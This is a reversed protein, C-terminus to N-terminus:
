CEKVHFLFPLNIPITATKSLEDISRSCRQIYKRNRRFSTNKCSPIVSCSLSHQIDASNTTSIESESEVTHQGAPRINALFIGPFLFFHAQTQTRALLLLFSDCYLIRFFFFVVEFPFLLRIYRYM